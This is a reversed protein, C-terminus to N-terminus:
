KQHRQFISLVKYLKQHGSDEIEKCIAHRKNRFEMIPFSGYIILGLMEDKGDEGALPEIRFQSNGFYKPIITKLWAISNIPCLLSM